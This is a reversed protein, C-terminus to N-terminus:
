KKLIFSINGCDWIRNWGNVKMNEWESLTPDFHELKNELSSKNFNYRHLRKLTTNFYWYNPKSYHDFNFGIKEYVNGTDWRRDAFTFIKNWEYNRQFHKLFKSAMGTITRSLCFRSIEWTDQEKRHGKAASPKSFTMIAVLVNNYFSGLKINSGTYGQIHYKDTFTKATKSDIEQIICKRAYLKDPDNYLIHKLRTKIINKKMLWEDEFITILRYDKSKCLKLKKLHYDNNTGKLESHWYLGCYEIAIKKSPIIIDLEYPNILQRDNKIIEFGLNSIYDGVEKEGMSNSTFCINCRYSEMKFSSLRKEQYHGKDCEFLIITGFNKECKRGLYKYNYKKCIDELEKTSTIEPIKKNKYVGDSWLKKIAKSKKIIIKPDNQIKKQIESQQQQFYIDQWKKKLGESTNKSVMKKRTGDDKDWAKKCGKSLSKSIKEKYDADKWQKLLRNRIKEKVHPQNLSHKNRCSRCLKKDQQNLYTKYLQLVGLNCEECTFWVKKSKKIPGFDESRILM